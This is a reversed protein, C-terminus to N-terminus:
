LDSVKSPTMRTWWWRFSCRFSSTSLFVFLRICIFKRFYFHAEIEDSKWFVTMNNKHLEHSTQKLFKSVNETFFCKFVLFFNIFDLSALFESPEKTWANSVYQVYWGWKAIFFANRFHGNVNSVQRQVSWPGVLWMVRLWLIFDACVIFVSFIREIKETLSLCKKSLKGIPLTMCCLKRLM